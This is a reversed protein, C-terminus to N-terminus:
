SFSTVGSIKFSSGSCWPLFRSLFVRSRHVPLLFPSQDKVLVSSSGQRSRELLCLYVCVLTGTRDLGDNLLTVFLLGDNFNDPDVRFFFGFTFYVDDKPSKTILKKRWLLFITVDSPFSM